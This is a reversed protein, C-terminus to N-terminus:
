RARTWLKTCASVVMTSSYLYGDMFPLNGYQVTYSANLVLTGDSLVKAYYRISDLGGPLGHRRLYDDFDPYCETMLERTIQGVMQSSVGNAFIGELIKTGHALQSTDNTGSFEAILALEETTHHSVGNTTGILSSYASVEKATCCLASQIKGQVIVFNMFQIVIVFFVIFLLLFVLVEIAMIGKEGEKRKEGKDRNM